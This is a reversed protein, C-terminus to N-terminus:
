STLSFIRALGGSISANSVIQIKCPSRLFWAYGKALSSSASLDMSSHDRHLEVEILGCALMLCPKLRKQGTQLRAYSKDMSNLLAFDM